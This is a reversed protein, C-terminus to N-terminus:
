EKTESVKINLNELGEKLLQRMSAIQVDIRELDKGTPSANLIGTIREVKATVAALKTAILDLKSEFLALEGSTALGLMRGITAASVEPPKPTALDAQVIKTSAPPNDAASEKLAADISNQDM